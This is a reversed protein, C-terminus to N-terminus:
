MACNWLTWIDVSSVSTILPNCIFVPFVPMVDSICMFLFVGLVSEIKFVGLKWDIQTVYVYWFLVYLACLLPNGIFRHM